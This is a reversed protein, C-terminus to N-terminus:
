AELITIGGCAQSCSCAHTAGEPHKAGRKRWRYDFGGPQMIDVLFQLVETVRRAPNSLMRTTLALVQAGKHDLYDFPLAYFLLILMLKPGHEEFMRGGAAVLGPDAWEPLQDTQALYDRVAAPLTSPEIFESTILTRMLANVQDVESRAFLDAIVQDALPDGTNRMRDLLSDSWVNSGFLVAGPVVRTSDTALDSM